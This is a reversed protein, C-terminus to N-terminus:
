EGGEGLFRRVLEPVDKASGLPFFTLRAQSKQLDLFALHEPVWGHSL